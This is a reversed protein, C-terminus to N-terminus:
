RAPNLRLNNAPNARSNITTLQKVFGHDGILDEPKKYDALQVEILNAQVAKRETM